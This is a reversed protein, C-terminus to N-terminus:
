GKFYESISDKKARKKMVRREVCRIVLGVVATAIAQGYMEFVEILFDNM